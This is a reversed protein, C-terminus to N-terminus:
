CMGHALLPPLSNSYGGGEVSPRIAADIGSFRHEMGLTFDHRQAACASSEAARVFGKDSVLAIAKFFMSAVRPSPRRQQQELNLKMPCPKWSLFTVPHVTLSAECLIGALTAM